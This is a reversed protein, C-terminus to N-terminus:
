SYILSPNLHDTRREWFVQAMDLSYSRYSGSKKAREIEKQVGSVGEEFGSADNDKIMRLVSDLTTNEVSAFFARDIIREYNRGM